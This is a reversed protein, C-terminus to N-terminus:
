VSWACLTAGERYIIVETGNPSVAIEVNNEVLSAKVKEQTEANDPADWLERDILWKIISGIWRGRISANEESIPAHKDQPKPIYNDFREVCKGAKEDFLMMNSTQMGIAHDRAVMLRLM